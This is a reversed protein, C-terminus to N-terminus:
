PTSKGGPHPAAPVSPPAFAAALDAATTRALYGRVRREVDCTLAAFPCAGGGACARRAFLCDREPRPGEVAALVGALVLRRAPKALRYGGAAGRAGRVLGARALRNMVIRVTHASADLRAALAAGSIREGDAAALLGVAHLALAGMDGIRWHGDM